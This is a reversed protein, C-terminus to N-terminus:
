ENEATNVKTTKVRVQRNKRKNNESVMVFILFALSFVIEILLVIADVGYIIFIIISLLLSYGIQRELSSYDAM